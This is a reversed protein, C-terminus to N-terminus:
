LPDSASHAFSAIMSPFTYAPVSTTVPETRVLEGGGLCFSRQVNEGFGASSNQSKTATLSSLAFATRTASSAFTSAANYHCPRCLTLAQTGLGLGLRGILLTNSAKQGEPRGVFLLGALPSTSCFPAM